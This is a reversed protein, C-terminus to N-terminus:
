QTCLGEKLYATIRERIYTECATQKRILTWVQSLIEWKVERNGSYRILILNKGAVKFHRLFGLNAPDDMNVAQYVVQGQNVENSFGERLVDRAYTEIKACEDCGLASHICVITIRDSKLNSAIPATAVSRPSNCVKTCVWYAASCAMFAALLSRVIVKLTKRSCLM